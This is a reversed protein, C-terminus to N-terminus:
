QADEMYLPSNQTWADFHMDYHVTAESLSFYFM